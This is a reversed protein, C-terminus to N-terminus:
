LNEIIAQALLPIMIEHHGTIALSLSNDGLTPRSLINERVRYHQIFDFNATTFGDIKGRVNRALNLAKMFVEPLIVASGFNVYVGGDGLYSIISALKKFDDLSAKGIAAGDASPHMHIIDTGLAIHVTAPIKHQYATAFISYNKYKANSDIIKKGIMEGITLDSLAAENVARNVFDATERAMGFTGGPLENAVDESTKGYLAIESDHVLASGNFALATIVDKKILENIVPSLGVKIVHSGMGFIVPKKNQKAQIIKDVLSRLSKTAYINPLSNIFDNFNKSKAPSQAFDKINVLSQRDKISITKIKSIDIHKLNAKKNIM